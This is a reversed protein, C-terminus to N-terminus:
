RHQDLFFIRFQILTNCLQFDLQRHLLFLCIPGCDFSSIQVRSQRLYFGLDHSSFFNNAQLIQLQGRQLLAQRLRSLDGSRLCDQLCFYCCRHSWRCAQHAVSQQQSKAHDQHDQNQHYQQQTSVPGGFEFIIFEILQCAIFKLNGDFDIFSFRDRLM